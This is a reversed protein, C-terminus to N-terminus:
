DIAAHLQFASGAHQAYAVPGCRPVITVFLIIGSSAYVFLSM